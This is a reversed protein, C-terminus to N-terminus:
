ADRGFRRALVVLAAVVACGSVVGYSLVTTGSREHRLIQFSLGAYGYLVGYVVFAFRKFRVGAGLAVATLALLAILYVLARASDDTVGSLLALGLVNVAVHLYTDLFHRKLGARHLLFGTTAVLAGYVLAYERLSGALGLGFRSLRVGFWAGLSSLALSLVFRNDFRYALAFFLVAGALLSHDWNAGFIHFRTELYGLEVGFLLCGLYLMYDFAPTPAEVQGAAFPRARSFCYYLSAGVAITLSALIASDGLNAAHAAITWGVGTVLAAVGVYFLANLELFLPFRERRVLAALTACQADSIAGANRWRELQALVTM